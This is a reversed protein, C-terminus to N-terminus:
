PLVLHSDGFEHWLYSDAVASEYCRRLVDQGAAAALLQLHSAEPEHWGTILGDVVRLGRNPGIVLGTWGSGAAIEGGPRAVTELARVATTGVAIVRGGSRRVERVLRVTQAPVAFEEPFPPEHHELSSVGAHLTISGLLVGAEGLRAILEATLPRGASPMESSGPSTAYVNQYAELPWGASTHGYRIPEGHRELYNLLTGSGEFRALMLRPGSAYPAVLELAAGGELSLREGARARLSRAGGAARLEIIRWCQGLGRVRTSFHVRVPTGDPLRAPLAAPITASDNVVLLDGHALLAPLDRFSAHEVTGQSRSAVMLKVQDRQLGREEPPERAELRSPLTFALTSV